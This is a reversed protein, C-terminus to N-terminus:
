GAKRNYVGGGGGVLWGMILAEKQFIFLCKKANSAEMQFHNKPM